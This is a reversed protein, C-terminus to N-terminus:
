HRHSNGGCVGRAGLGTSLFNDTMIIPCSSDDLLNQAIPLGSLTPLSSIIWQSKFKGAMKALCMLPSNPTELLYFGAVSHIIWCLYLSQIQLDSIRNSGPVISIPSLVYALLLSTFAVPQLLLHEKLAKVIWWCLTEAIGLPGSFSPRPYLGMEMLTFSIVLWDSYSGEM